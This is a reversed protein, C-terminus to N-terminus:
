SVVANTRRLKCRRHRAGRRWSAHARPRHSSSPASGIDTRDNRRSCRVNRRGFLCPLAHGDARRRTIRKNKRGRRADGRRRPGAHARRIWRSPRSSKASAPRAKANSLGRSVKQRAAPRGARLWCAEWDNQRRPHSNRHGADARIRADIDERKARRIRFSWIRICQELQTPVASAASRTVDGGTKGSRNAADETLCRYSEGQRSLRSFRVPWGRRIANQATTTAHVPLLRQEAGCQRGGSRVMPLVQVTV